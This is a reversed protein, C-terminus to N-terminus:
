NAKIEKNTIFVFIMGLVGSRWEDIFVCRRVNASIYFLLWFAFYQMFASYLKSPLSNYYEFTTKVVSRIDFQIIHSSGCLSALTARDGGPPQRFYLDYITGGGHFRTPVNALFFLDLYLDFVNRLSPKQWKSFNKDSQHKNFDERNQHTQNKNIIKHYTWLIRIITVNLNRCDRQERHHKM